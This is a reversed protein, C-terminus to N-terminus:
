SYHIEGEHNNLLRQKHYDEFRISSFPDTHSVFSYFESFEKDIKRIQARDHDDYSYEPIEVKYDTSDSREYSSHTCYEFTCGKNAKIHTFESLVLVCNILTSDSIICDYFLCNEFIGGTITCSLLDGDCLHYGCLDGTIVSDGYGRVVYNNFLIVDFIDHYTMASEILPIIRDEIIRPRLM